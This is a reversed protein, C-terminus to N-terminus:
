NSYINKRNQYIREAKKLSNEIREENMAFDSIAFKIENLTTIFTCEMETAEVNNIPSIFRLNEDLSNIRKTFYEPLENIENMKDKLSRMEAKMEIIRSRNQTEQKHIEQVKDATHSSLWIGLLLFFLLTAHIILQTSFSFDFVLNSVLMAAIAAIAYIWVAFWSIGLAGIQKQSKDQLDIWPIQFSMFFLGFILSSAVINLTHINTPTEGRFLIFAAILVAEGLLLLLWWLIKKTSM